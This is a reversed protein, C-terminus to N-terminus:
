SHQSIAALRGQQLPQLHVLVHPAHHLVGGTCVGVLDLYVTLGVDFREKHLYIFNLKM